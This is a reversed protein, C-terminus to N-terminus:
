KHIISGDERTGIHQIEIEPSAYKLILKEVAVIGGNHELSDGLMVITLKLHSM